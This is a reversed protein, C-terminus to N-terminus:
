TQHNSAPQFLIPYNSEYNSYIAHFLLFTEPNSVSVDAEASIKDWFLTRTCLMLVPAEDSSCLSCTEQLGRRKRYEQINRMYKSNLNSILFDVKVHGLEHVYDGFRGEEWSSVCFSLSTFTPLVPHLITSFNCAVPVRHNGLHPFYAPQHFIKAM